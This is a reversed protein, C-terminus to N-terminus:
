AKQLKLFHIRGCNASFVSFSIEVLFYLAHYYHKGQEFIKMSSTATLFSAILFTTYFYGHRCTIATRLAASRVVVLYDCMYLYSLNVIATTQDRAIAPRASLSALKVHFSGINLSCPAIYFMQVHIIFLISHYNYYRLSCNRNRIVEPARKFQKCVRANEYVLNLSRILICAIPM